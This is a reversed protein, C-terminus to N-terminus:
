PASDKWLREFERLYQAALERDRIILLNEDNRTEASNSWNYSGTIVLESDIVAFKHHMHGYGGGLRVPIGSDSLYETKSYRGAAQNDDGIVTVASGRRKEGVLTSCIEFNTISYVAAQITKDASQLASIILGRCGGPSFCVVLSDGGPVGLYEPSDASEAALALSAAMLILVAIAAPNHEIGIRSNM